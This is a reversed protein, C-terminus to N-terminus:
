KTTVLYVSRRKEYDLISEIENLTLSIDDENLLYKHKFRSEILVPFTYDKIKIIDKQLDILIITNPEMELIAGIESIANQTTKIPLLDNIIANKYFIEGFSQAIIAKFGYDKIAWVAYERSSGTAFGYGAVLITSKTYAPNNLPFSTDKRWDGFLANKYGHRKPEYCFRAPIIQDTDINNKLIPMGHGKIVERNM